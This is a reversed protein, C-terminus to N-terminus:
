RTRRGPRNTNNTVAHAEDETVLVREPRRGRRTSNPHKTGRAWGIHSREGECPWIELLYGDGGCMQCTYDLFGYGVCEECDELGELDPNIAIGNQLAQAVCPCQESLFGLGGCGGEEEPPCPRREGLLWSEESFPKECIQCPRRPSWRERTPPQRGPPTSPPLPRRRRSNSFSASSSGPIWPAQSSYMKKKEERELTRAARKAEKPPTHVIELNTLNRPM